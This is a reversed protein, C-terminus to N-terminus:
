LYANPFLSVCRGANSSPIYGGVHLVYESAEDGVSFSSYEAFRTEGDFSEMDIRLAVNGTKTM